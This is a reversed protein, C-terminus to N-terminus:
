RNCEPPTDEMVAVGQKSIQNRQSSNIIGGGFPFLLRNFKNKDSYVSLNYDGEPIDEDRRQSRTRLEYLKKPMDEPSLILDVCGSAIASEPMNAIVGRRYKM